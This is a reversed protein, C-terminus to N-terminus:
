CPPQVQLFLPHALLPIWTIAVFCHGPSVALMSIMVSTLQNNFMSIDYVCVEICIRHLNESGELSGMSCISPQLEGEVM